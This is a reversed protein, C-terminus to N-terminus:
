GTARSDNDALRRKFAGAQEFRFAKFYRRQTDTEFRAIDDVVEESAPVENGADPVRGADDQRGDRQYRGVAEKLAERIPRGFWAQSGAERDTDEAISGIFDGYSEKGVVGTYYMLASAYPVGDM